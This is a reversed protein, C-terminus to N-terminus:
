TDLLDQRQRRLSVELEGPTPMEVGPKMLVVVAAASSTTLRFLEHSDAIALSVDQPNICLRTVSLARRFGAAANTQYTM